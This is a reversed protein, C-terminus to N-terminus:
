QLFVPFLGGWFANCFKLLGLVIQYTFAKCFCIFNFIFPWKYAEQSNGM